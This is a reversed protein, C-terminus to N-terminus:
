PALSATHRPARPSPPTDDAPREPTAGTTEAVPRSPSAGGENAWRSLALWRLQTQAGQDPHTDAM